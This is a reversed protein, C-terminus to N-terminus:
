APPVLVDPVWLYGEGDLIYCERLGHGKNATASIVTDGRALAAAEASDPDLGHMRIEAGIGRRGGEALYPALGHHDYTHDAHLSWTGSVNKLVAFDPDAYVTEAGLVERAFALAGALDRVLLNLSIGSLTASYEPAPIWPDGTRLKV